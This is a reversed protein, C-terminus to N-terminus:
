ICKAVSIKLKLQDSIDSFLAIATNMYELDLRTVGGEMLGFDDAYSIINIRKFKYKLLKNCAITWIFPGLCSGQPCGRYLLFWVLYHSLAM